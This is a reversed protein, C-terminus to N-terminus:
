IESLINDVIEAIPKGDKSKLPYSWAYRSYVDVVNLLFKTPKNWKYFKSVDMLDLQLCIGFDCKIKHYNKTPNSYIQNAPQTDYFDKVETFTLGLKNKKVAKWLHYLSGFGKSPNYYLEHLEEM